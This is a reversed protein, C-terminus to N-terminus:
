SSVYSWLQLHLPLSLCTFSRDSNTPVDLNEVCDTTLIIDSLCIQHASSVCKLKLDGIWTIEWWLTQSLIRVHCHSLRRCPTWRLISQTRRFRCVCVLLSQIIVLRLGVAWLLHLDSLITQWLISWYIPDVSTTVPIHHTCTATCMQSRSLVRISCWPDDQRVSYLSYHGSVEFVSRSSVRKEFAFPDILIRTENRRDRKQRQWFPSRERFVQWYIVDAYRSHRESYRGRENWWRIVDNNEICNRDSSIFEDSIWRTNIIIKRNM